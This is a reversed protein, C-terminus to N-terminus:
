LGLLWRDRWLWQAVEALGGVIKRWIGLVEGAQDLRCMRGLMRPLGLRKRRLERRRVAVVVWAEEEALADCAELVVGFALVIRSDAEARGARRGVVGVIGAEDRGGAADVARAWAVVLAIDAAAVASVAAASDTGAVAAM